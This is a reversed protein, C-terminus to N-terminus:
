RIVRLRPSRLGRDPDAARAPALSNAQNHDCRACGVQAPKGIRLWRVMLWVAAAVLTTMTALEHFWQPLELM